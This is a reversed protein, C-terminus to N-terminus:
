RKNNVVKLDPKSQVSFHNKVDSRMLLKKNHYICSQTVEESKNYDFWCGCQFEAEILSRTRDKTIM